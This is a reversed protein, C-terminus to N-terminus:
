CDEVHKTNQIFFQKGAALDHLCEENMKTTKDRIIPISKKLMTPSLFPTENEELHLNM